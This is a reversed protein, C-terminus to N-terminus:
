RLQEPPVGWERQIASRDVWMYDDGSRMPRWIKVRDTVIQLMDKDSTVLVTELGEAQARRALSAMVDDAEVGPIELVPLGLAQAGAATKQPAIGGASKARRTVIAHYARYALGLADILFLRPM